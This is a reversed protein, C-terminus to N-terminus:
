LTEAPTRHFASDWGSAIAEDEASLPPLTVVPAGAATAATVPVVMATFDKAVGILIQGQIAPPIGAREMAAITQAFKTTSNNSM